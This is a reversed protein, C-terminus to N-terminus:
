QSGAQRQSKPRAPQPLVGCCGDAAAVAWGPAACAAAAAYSKSMSMKWGTTALLPMTALSCSSAVRMPRSMQLAAAVGDIGGHGHAKRQGHGQGVGAVDAAAAEHHHM